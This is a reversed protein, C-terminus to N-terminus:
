LSLDTAIRFRLDRQPSDPDPLELGGGLLEAVRGAVALRLGLTQVTYGRQAGAADSRNPDFEAPGVYLAVEADDHVVQLHMREGAPHRVASTIALDLARLLRARDSRVTPLGAPVDTSASLGRDAAMSQFAEAASAFAVALDVDELDLRVDDTRLRGLEMLGDVLHLLHHASQGVRAIADEAERPLAGYAGDKLLEQYGLIASLPSRLEHTTVDFMAERADRAEELRDRADQLARETRRVKRWALAATLVAGAALGLIAAVGVNM